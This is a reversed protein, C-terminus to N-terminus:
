KRYYVMKAKENVTLVKGAKRLKALGTAVTVGPGKHDIAKVIAALSLAKTKAKPLAALIRKNFDEIEAPTRRM